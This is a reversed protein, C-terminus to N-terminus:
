NENPCNLKTKMFDAVDKVEDLITQASMLHQEFWVIKNELLELIECPNLTSLFEDRIM